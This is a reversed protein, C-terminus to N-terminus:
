HTKSANRCAAARLARCTDSQRQRRHRVRAERSSRTEGPAPVFLPPTSEPSAGVPYSDGESGASQADIALLAGFGDHEMLFSLLAQGDKIEPTLEVGHWLDYYKRGAQHSVRMQKGSVDFENKNIITWLIQQKGPFKSSYIGSQMPAPTYPEWDLSNLLGTFQREIHAIRRVTESDRPTMENWIGWINEWTEMGVGNFFAYQLDTNKDRQWRDSIHTMHRPELWKYKAVLPANRGAPGPPLVAQGWDMNNYALGIDVQLHEPEFALPHGTKDSATRYVYPVVNMTDGNVGDAGISALNAALVDCENRDEQRAGQDWLMVPFLVRVNRRHFDSVMQRLAAVGGPIDRFCDFQNRNDVGINPYVPWILVSDIGGYRKELDELYRDVTYKRLVPDYFYRDEVMMQPQMYSSQTWQLEPRRYERDDYGLRKLYEMRWRKMDAIWKSFDAPTAPGFIHQGQATVAPNQAIASGSWIIVGALLLLKIQNM